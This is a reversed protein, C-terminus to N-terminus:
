PLGYHADRPPKRNQPTNSRAHHDAGFGGFFVFTIHNFQSTHGIPFEHSEYRLARGPPVGDVVIQLAIRWCITYRFASYCVTAKLGASHIARPISDEFILDGTKVLKEDSRHAVERFPFIYPTGGIRDPVIAYRIRICIAPLNLHRTRPFVACPTYYHVIDCVLCWNSIHRTNQLIFVTSLVFGNNATERGRASM